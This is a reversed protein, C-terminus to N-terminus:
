KPIGKCIRIANRSTNLREGNDLFEILVSNMRRTFFLVKCKRGKYKLRERGEPTKKNGWNYIYIKDTGKM